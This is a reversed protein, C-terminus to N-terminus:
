ENAGGGQKSAKIPKSWGAMLCTATVSALQEVFYHGGPKKAGEITDM